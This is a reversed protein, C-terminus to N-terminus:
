KLASRQHYSLSNEFSSSVTLCKKVILYLENFFALLAGLNFCRTDLLNKETDPDLIEYNKTILFKEGIFKQLSDAIANLTAKHFAASDLLKM